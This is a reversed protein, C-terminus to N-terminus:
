IAGNDLLIQIASPSVGAHSPRFDLPSSRLFSNALPQQGTLSTLVFTLHESKQRILTKGTGNKAREAASVRVQIDNPNLVDTKRACIIGLNELPSRLAASKYQRM